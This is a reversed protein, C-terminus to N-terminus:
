QEVDNGGTSAAIRLKGQFQRVIFVVHMIGRGLVFSFQVDDIDVEEKVVSEM